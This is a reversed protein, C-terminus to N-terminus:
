GSWHSCFNRLIIVDKLFVTAWLLMGSICGLVQKKYSSSNWILLLSVLVRSLYMFPPFLFRFLRYMYAGNTVRITSVPWSLRISWIFFIASFRCRSFISIISTRRMFYDNCFMQHNVSSIHKVYETLFNVVLLWYHLLLIIILIFMVNCWFM